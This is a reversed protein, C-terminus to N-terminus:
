RNDLKNGKHDLQYASLVGDITNVARLHREEKSRQKLSYTDLSKYISNVRSILVDFHYKVASIYTLSAKLSLLEKLTASATTDDEVEFKKLQTLIAASQQYDYDYHLMPETLWGLFLIGSNYAELREKNILGEVIKNSCKAVMVAADHRAKSNYDVL